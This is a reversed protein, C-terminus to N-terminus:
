WQSVEVMGELMGGVLGGIMGEVMGRRGYRSRGHMMHRRRGHRGLVMGGAEEIMGGAETEEVIGGKVMCVEIM